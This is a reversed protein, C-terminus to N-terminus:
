RPAPASKALYELRIACHEGKEPDCLCSVERRVTGCVDCVQRKDCRVHDRYVPRAWMDSELATMIEAHTVEKRWQHRGLRIGLFRTTCNM